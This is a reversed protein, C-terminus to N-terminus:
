KQYIEEDRLQLSCLSLRELTLIRLNMPVLDEMVSSFSEDYFIDIERSGETIAM